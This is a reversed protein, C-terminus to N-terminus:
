SAIPLRSDPLDTSVAASELALVGCEHRPLPQMKVFSCFSQITFSETYFFHSPLHAGPPFCSFVAAFTMDSVIM